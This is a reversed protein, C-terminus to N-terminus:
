QDPVPRELVREVLQHGAFHGSHGDTVVLLTRDDEDIAGAADENPVPLDGKFIRVGDHGDAGVSIACATRGGAQPQVVLDGITGHDIGLLKTVERM